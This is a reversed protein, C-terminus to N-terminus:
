SPLVGIPTLITLPDPVISSGKTKPGTYSALATGTVFISNVESAASASIPSYKESPIDREGSFESPAGNMHDDSLSSTTATSSPFLSWAREAPVAFIVTVAVLPVSSVDSSTDAVQATVTLGAWSGPSIFGPLIQFM